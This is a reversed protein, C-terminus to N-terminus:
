VNVLWYVAYRCRKVSPWIDPRANEGFHEHCWFKGSLGAVGTQIEDYILLAENEDALQRLQEM